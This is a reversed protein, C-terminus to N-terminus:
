KYPRVFPYNSNSNLPQKLFCIWDCPFHLCSCRCPHSRIQLLFWALAKPRFLEPSWILAASLSLCRRKFHTKNYAMFRPWSSNHRQPILRLIRAYIEDRGKLYVFMHSEGEISFVKLLAFVRAKCWFTNEKAKLTTTLLSTKIAASHKNEMAAHM